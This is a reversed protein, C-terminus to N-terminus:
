CVCEYKDRVRDVVYTGVAVLIIVVVGLCAAPEWGIARQTYLYIGSSLPNHEDRTVLMITSSFDKSSGIFSKLGGAVVGGIMLPFTIKLFTTLRNAGLNMAPEEMSEHVYEMAACCSRLM